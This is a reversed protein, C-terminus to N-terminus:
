EREGEDGWFRGFWRHHWPPPGGDGRHEMMREHRRRLRDPLAEATGRWAHMLGHGRGDILQGDRADYKLKLVNGRPTMMELEYIWAGHDRELEAELMEGDFQGHARDLIARLPLVAGSRVADLAEEHDGRDDDALAVPVHALSVAVVAALLLRGLGSHRFLRSM